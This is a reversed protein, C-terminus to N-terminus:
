KKELEKIKNQLMQKEIQMVRALEDYRHLRTTIGTLVEGLDHNTLSIEEPSIIEVHSPMYKFMLMAMHLFSEVKVEIEAFTAFLDKKDKVLTPEHIKEEKVSVGKEKKMEDIIKNLTETLHEKPKGMIELVLMGTIEAGSM